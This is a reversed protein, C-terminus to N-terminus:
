ELDINTKQFQEKILQNVDIKTNSVPRSFKETPSNQSIVNEFKVGAYPNDGIVQISAASIEPVERNDTFDEDDEDNEDEVIRRSKRKIKETKPTVKVVTEEEEENEKILAHGFSLESACFRCNKPKTFSYLNNKGCEPCYASLM